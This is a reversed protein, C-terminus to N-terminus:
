STVTLTKNTGFQVIHTFTTSWEAAHGCSMGVDGTTAVHTATVDTFHLSSKENRFIGNAVVSTYSCSAAGGGGIIPCRLIPDTIDWLGLGAISEIHLQPVNDLHCSAINIVPVSDTCDTFTLSTVGGTITPAATHAFVHAEIYNTTCHVAAIPALKKISM